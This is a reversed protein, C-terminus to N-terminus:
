EEKKQEICIGYEQLERLADEYTPLPNLLPKGNDDLDADIFIGKLAM